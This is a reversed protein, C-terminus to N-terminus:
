AAKGPQWNKAAENMEEPSVDRVHTAITWRIGFSDEVCGTRDGWFMDAPASIEKMGAGAAQKFTADVDDMHLYFNSRSPMACMQENTDCLFVKSDGFMLCAHMIKSSGPMPMRYVEKAGFAKTYLDIAKAADTLVLTPTVTSFGEPRM